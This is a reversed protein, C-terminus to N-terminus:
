WGSTQCVQSHARTGQCGSALQFVDLWLLAKGRVLLFVARKQGAVGFIDSKRPSIRGRLRRDSGGPLSRHTNAGKPSPHWLEEASDLASGLAAYRAALGM